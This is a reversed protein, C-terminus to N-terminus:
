FTYINNPTICYDLPVDLATVDDIKEEAEFFSFGIKIVGPRCEKLFKDYYGKGYGIRHGITDFALLPLIILDIEKPSSLIGNVPEGIGIENREFLTDDDVRVCEMSNDAISMVPYYLWQAPNKFYCYDSILQPDYENYKEYPAYTMIHPPIEIHLKQFSILVLDELRNKESSSIALRKQKYINRIENKTM